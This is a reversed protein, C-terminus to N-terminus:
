LISVQVVANEELSVEACQGYLDVLAYYSSGPSPLQAVVGQDVSNVILRLDGNAV